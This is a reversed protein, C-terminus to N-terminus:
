SSLTYPVYACQSLLTHRVLTNGSYYFSFFFTAFRIPTAHLGFFGVLGYNGRFMTIAVFIIYRKVTGVINKKDSACDNNVRRSKIIKTNGVNQCRSCAEPSEHLPACLGQQAKDGNSNQKLCWRYQAINNITRLQYQLFLYQIFIYQASRM